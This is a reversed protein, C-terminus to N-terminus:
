TPTNLHHVTLLALSASILLKRNVFDLAAKSRIAALDAGPTQQCKSRATVWDNAQDFIRYCMGSLQRWNTPCGYHVLFFSLLLKINDCFVM